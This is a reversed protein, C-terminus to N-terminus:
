QLRIVTLTRQYMSETSLTGTYDIKWRVRVTDTATLTVIAQTSVPVLENNTSSDSTRVSNPMPDTENIALGISGSFNNSNSVSSSFIVLYTGAVGPTIALDTSLNGWSTSTTTITDTGSVEHSSNSCGSNSELNSVSTYLETFNSNVDDASIVDGDVFSIKAAYAFVTALVAAITIGIINNRRTISNKIYDKMSFKRSGEIQKIRNELELIKSDLENHKM